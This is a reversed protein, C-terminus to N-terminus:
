ISTLTEWLSNMSFEWNRPLMTNQYHIESDIIREIDSFNQFIKSEDSQSKRTFEVAGGGEAHSYTPLGLALSELVHNPGPDNRSGTFYIDNKLIEHALELGSLPDICRTNRFTGRHRGIYTFEIDDRKEVLYDLFDYVDFGKLLNNSWHHTVIKLKRGSEKRILDSKRLNLYEDSVGNYLISSSKCQWGKQFFYKKMWNSVFITHHNVTSCQLLLPDMHETNKRADCENIRQVIKTGPNARCYNVAENIGFTDPESRPDMLFIIDIDSETLTTLIRHEYEESSRFFSRIFLNGGGYPGTRPKRNIAIKM